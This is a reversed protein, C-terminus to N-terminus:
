GPVCRRRDGAQCAAVDAQWKAVAEQHAREVRAKEAEYAKVAEEHARAAEQNAANQELQKRALEETVYYTPLM